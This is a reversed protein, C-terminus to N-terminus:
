SMRDVSVILFTKIQIRIPAVKLDLALFLLGLLGFKILIRRHKVLSAIFQKAQQQSPIMRFGSVPHLISPWIVISFKTIYNPLYCYM